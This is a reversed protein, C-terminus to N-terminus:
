SSIEALGRRVRNVINLAILAAVLPLLWALWGPLDGGIGIWLGLAGFVFARDSKGMPGDYRRTAGVMVGLVGALESLTALFVVLAAGAATFPAMAAVPLYLAADSIVDCLENLYAGLPSKQNFERALMGDLANLAMRLFLWAPLLLFPWRAPACAAVIIGIGVSGAAAALTVQNATVGARALAGALPRLLAQFRPKLDYLTIM